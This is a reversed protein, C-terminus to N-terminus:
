NYIDSRLPKGSVPDFLIEVKNGEKNRGYVEYCNGSVELKSIRYGQKELLQRFDAEKQWKAAPQAPCPVSAFAASAVVAMLSAALLKKM